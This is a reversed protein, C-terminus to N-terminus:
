QYIIEVRFGNEKPKTDTKLYPNFCTYCIESTGKVPSLRQEIIELKKYKEERSLIVQEKRDQKSIIQLTILASGLVLALMAAYKLYRKLIHKNKRSQILEWSEKKKWDMPKNDISSIKEKFINDINSDM